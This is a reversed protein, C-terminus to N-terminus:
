LVRTQMGDVSSGCMAAISPQSDKFAQDFSVGIPEALLLFQDHLTRQPRKPGLGHLTDNRGYLNIHTRMNCHRASQTVSM